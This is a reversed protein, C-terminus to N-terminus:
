EMGLRKMRNYLTKRSINLLRAAKQKEGSARALAEAIRQRSLKEYVAELSDPFGQDRLKLYQAPLHEEGIEGGDCFIVAREICNRLERVNGPWAHRYLIDKVASSVGAVQRGYKANFVRLFHRVLLELDDRRERLAPLHITVVSLRYFLDQRLRKQALLADVDTNTAAIIRATSRLTEAGGLRQFEGDQLVRLLKPQAAATMDAIEDLFLTGGDALELKGTRRRVADTFAGQEHGFMESELLTDPIASCNVKVYPGARGSRRHTAAAVLEKGTGSEGTILVPADTAAVRDIERLIRLMAPNGTVLSEEGAETAATERSSRLREIEAVLQATKLPKVFFNLAGYRMSEVASEVSPYGTIMIIPLSRDRSKLSKLLDIGNQQPMAVDLLVLDVPNREILGPVTRPDSTSLSSFGRASFIESLSLCMEQEDDVILITFPM